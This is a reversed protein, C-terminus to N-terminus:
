TLRGCMLAPYSFIRSSNGVRHGDDNGSRTVDSHLLGQIAVRIRLSTM